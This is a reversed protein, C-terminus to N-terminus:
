RDGTPVTDLHAYILLSRDGVRGPLRGLVSTRRPAPEITQVQMGLAELERSVHEALDREFRDDPNPHNGTNVSPIQVLTRLCEVIEDRAEDIAAFVRRQQDAVAELRQSIEQETQAVPPSPPTNPAWARAPDLELLRINASATPATPTITM